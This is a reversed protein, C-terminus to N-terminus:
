LGDSYRGCALWPHALAQTASIRFSPDIQLLQSLFDLFAEDEVRMRQFLSTRKPVLVQRNVFLENKCNFLKSVNKGSKLMWAPFPGIIGMVRALLSQCSDNQFLVFGTWLEAIICGLSWMDIKSNYPLCGLIVEPARYCRSQVYTGLKDGSSFCASGFDIVKAECRSYSKFLINEPKLDSHILGLEGHVFELAVLIQQTLKQLHGMTFFPPQANALCRNFKSFEYLNELLLETVLILHERWYFFDLLGLCNKKEDGQWNALGKKMKEDGQRNALGKKMKEDDQRNALGKKMKADDQRNALGGTM